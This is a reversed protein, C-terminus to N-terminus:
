ARRLERRFSLLQGFATACFKVLKMRQISVEGTDREKHPVDMECVDYGNTNAYLALFLSPALTDPPIHRAAREWISRHVLKFPVNADYIRTSFMVRLVHRILASLALRIRPDQRNRRIGFVGDRGEQVMEWARAFGNLPIQSDSDVLFLYEGRARNLGTMLAGGHGQNEQHIVNIRYDEKAANDLLLGTNDRSGDNVAVLESGEVCSLVHKQVDAVAENIGDQENYVPMVVSLIIKNEAHTKM